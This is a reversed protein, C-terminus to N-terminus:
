RVRTATYQTSPAMMSGLRNRGKAAAATVKKPMTVARRAWALLRRRSASFMMISLTDSITRSTSALLGRSFPLLVLALGPWAASSRPLASSDPSTDLMVAARDLSAAEEMSASAMARVAERVPMSKSVCSARTFPCSVGSRRALSARSCSFTSGVSAPSSMAKARRSMDATISASGGTAVCSVGTFSSRRMARMTFSDLATCKIIVDSSALRMRAVPSITAARMSKRSSWFTSLRMSRRISRAARTMVDGESSVANYRSFSSHVTRTAGCMLPTTPAPFAAM